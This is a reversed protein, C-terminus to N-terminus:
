PLNPIANVIKLTRRVFGILEKIDLVESVDGGTDAGGLYDRSYDHIEDLEDLLACAPHQEGTKRIKEVISALTDDSGFFGPYTWTCYTEVIFRMKTVIERPRGVGIKYFYLLDIIDSAVRAKRPDELDFQVIESTM